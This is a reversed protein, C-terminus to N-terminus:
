CARGRDFSVKLNHTPSEAITLKETYVINKGEQDTAITLTIEGTQKPIFVVEVDGTQGRNLYGTNYFDYEAEAVDSLWVFFTQEELNGNNTWNIKASM